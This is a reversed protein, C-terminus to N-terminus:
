FWLHATEGQLDTLMQSVCSCAVGLCMINYQLKPPLKTNVGPCARFNSVPLILNDM